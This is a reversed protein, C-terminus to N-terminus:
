KSWKSYTEYDVFLAKAMKVTNFGLMKEASQVFEIQQQKQEPTM